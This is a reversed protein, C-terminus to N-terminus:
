PHFFLIILVVFSVTTILRSLQMGIVIICAEKAPFIGLATPLNRRLARFPNGLASGALMAMVIQPTGLLGHDRFNAAVAASQVLGGFQALMVSLVEPSFYRGVAEPLLTEWFAFADAKILWEMGLMMPLTICVMRFLLAAARELAKACAKPWGPLPRKDTFATCALPEDATDPTHRWRHWCMVGLVVLLGSGFQVGFYCVGAFGVAGVVPYLVRLSHSVYALYSNIMGGAILASRPLCGDEHSSVLLTNAAPNSVLAAPMALGVVEPLRALRALKGMVRSLALHWRRQEMVGGAFAALGVMGFLDLLQDGRALLRASPSAKGPMYLVLWVSFALAAGFWVLRWPQTWPPVAARRKKPADREGSAASNQTPAASPDDQPTSASPLHDTLATGVANM